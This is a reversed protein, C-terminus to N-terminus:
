IEITNLFAFEGFYKLAADNYAKAADIANQFYGLCKSRKDVYIEARWKRRSIVWVVGKYGSTNDSRLRSNQMNQAASALRLNDRRNDLGNHNIHDVYEGKVLARGLVIEMIIRHM